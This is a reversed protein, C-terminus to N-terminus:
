PLEDVDNTTRAAHNRLLDFPNDLLDSVVRRELQGSLRRVLLSRVRGSRGVFAAPGWLPAFGAMAPATLPIPVAVTLVRTSGRM